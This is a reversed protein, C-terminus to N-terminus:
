CRKDGHQQPNIQFHCEKLHLSTQIDQILPSGAQHNWSCIDWFLSEIWFWDLNRLMILVHLIHLSSKAFPLLITAKLHLQQSFLSGSSLKGTSYNHNAAELAAESLPVAPTTDIELLLPSHGALVMLHGLNRPQKEFLIETQLAPLWLPCTRLYVQCMLVFYFPGSPSPSLHSLSGLTCWPSCPCWKLKAPKLRGAASQRSGKFRSCFSRVSNPDQLPCPLIPYPVVPCIGETDKLLYESIHEVRSFNRFSSFNFFFLTIINSRSTSRKTM